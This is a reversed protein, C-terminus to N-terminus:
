VRCAGQYNTMNIEINKLNDVVLQNTGRTLVQSCSSPADGLAAGVVLPGRGPAPEEGVQIGMDTFVAMGLRQCSSRGGCSCGGGQRILNPEVQNGQSVV